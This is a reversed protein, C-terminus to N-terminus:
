AETTGVLDARLDRRLGDDRRQRKMELYADDFDLFWNAGSLQQECSLEPFLNEAVREFTAAGGLAMTEFPGTYRWRRALGDRVIEDVVQPTAVGREVIWAAERLLAFQLRNWVFGPVDRDVLVPRKGLSKLTAMVSNLRDRDTNDGSIVEVLPMLLPPNWYHTGLVRDEAGALRGLASISLSSTNSAITAHPWRGAVDRLLAGKAAEEEIISEVVIGPVTSVSNLSDSVTLRLQAERTRHEDTLGAQRATEFAYNIRVRAPAATRAVVTIQHGGVAYECAIQSGMRGGGVVLVNSSAM